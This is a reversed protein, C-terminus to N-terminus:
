IADDSWRACRREDGGEEGSDHRESKEKKGGLRYAVREEDDFNQERKEREM